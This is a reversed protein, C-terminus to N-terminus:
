KPQLHIKFWNIAQECGENFSGDVSYGDYHSGKLLSYKTPVGNNQLIQHVKEGHQTRDWLEEDSAELIMTPVSVLPAFDVPRHKYLRVLNPYGDLGELMDKDDQSISQMSDDKTSIQKSDPAGSHSLLDSTVMMGLQSVICSIKREFRDIAGVTIVHGGGM